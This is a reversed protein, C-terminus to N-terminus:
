LIHFIGDSDSIHSPSLDRLEGDDIFSDEYKDDDSCHNSGETGTHEIDVGFSERNHWYLFASFRHVLFWTLSM